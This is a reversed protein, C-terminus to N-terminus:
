NIAYLVWGAAALSGLWAAPTRVDGCRKGVVLEKEEAGEVRHREKRSRKSWGVQVQVGLLDGEEDGLALVLGSKHRCLSGTGPILESVATAKPQAAGRVLEGSRGVLSTDGGVARAGMPTTPPPCWTQGAGLFTKFGKPVLQM